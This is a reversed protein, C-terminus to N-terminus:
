RWPDTLSSENSRVSVMYLYLESSTRSSSSLKTEWCNRPNIWSLSSVSVSWRSRRASPTAEARSRQPKGYRCLELQNPRSTVMKMATKLRTKTLSNTPPSQNLPCNTLKFLSHPQPFNLFRPFGPEWGVTAQVVFWVRNTHAPDPTSSFTEKEPISAPGQGTSWRYLPPHLFVSDRNPYYRPNSRSPRAQCFARM